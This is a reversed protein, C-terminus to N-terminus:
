GKDFVGVTDLNEWCEKKVQTDHSKKEEQQASLVFGKVQETLMQRLSFEERCFTKM